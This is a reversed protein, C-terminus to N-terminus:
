RALFSVLKEQQLDISGGASNIPGLLDSGARRQPHRQLEFATILAPLLLKVLEM